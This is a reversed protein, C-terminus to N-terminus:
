LVCVLKKKTSGTSSLSCFYKYQILEKLKPCRGPSFFFVHPCASSGTFFVTTLLYSYGQCRDRGKNKGGGGGGQKPQTETLTAMMARVEKVRFTLDANPHLGFIEPSDIDPFSQAFVQYKSVENFDPNTYEFNGPIPALPQAPNYKFGGGLAAPQIWNEAYQKFLIRDMDDTIKGGYQAEAVIYQLTPWSLAGSYLHKELFMLCSNLDGANYEYPICWGLAGFKRREQVISHTFCLCWVLQRWQSTEVRDLRDQDVMVTYSRLLGARLGQPPENTVKTFM